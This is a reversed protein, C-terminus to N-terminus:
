PKTVPWTMVRQNFRFRESRGKSTGKQMYRNAVGVSVLEEWMRHASPDAFITDSHLYFGFLSRSTLNMYLLRNRGLGERRRDKETFTAGVFPKDIFFDTLAGVQYRIEARGVFRDEEDVEVFQVTKETSHEYPKVVVGKYITTGNIGDSRELDTYCELNEPSIGLPL